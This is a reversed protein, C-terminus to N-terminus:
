MRLRHIEPNEQRPLLRGSSFAEVATMAHYDFHPYKVEFFRKMAEISFYRRPLLPYSGRPHAFHWLAVKTDDFWVAPIGANVLRWVLDYPGCIYGRFTRHE